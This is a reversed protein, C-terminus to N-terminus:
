LFSFVRVLISFLLREFIKEPASRHVISLNYFFDLSWHSVEIKNEKIIFEEDCATESTLRFDTDPQSIKSSGPMTTSEVKSQM